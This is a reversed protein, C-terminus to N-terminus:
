RDRETVFNAIAVLQARPGPLLDARDLASLAAELHSEAIDTAEERAGSEEILRAAETVDQEALPRSLLAQLEPRRGDARALATVVPLTKKHQVLDNGAPKGTQSPQGWIGLVDDIAQFAVGVNRGFDALATVTTDPAGVLVAGLSSACSLLAGTKGTAMRLCEEVTVSTRTEFAMDDAQGAIMEQTATALTATARVREPTPDDLLVQTALAALADGAIIASGIGFQAWVTPRHRRDRDEDIIDDHLLSFNHVLEIAVAGPIGAEESGGAAAASVLVLAARVRKGGGALHHRVPAALEPSLREVAADLAPTVLAAARGLADPALTPVDSVPITTM